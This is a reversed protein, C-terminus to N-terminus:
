VNELVNATYSRGRLKSSLHVYHNFIKHVTSNLRQVANIKANLNLYFPNIVLPNNTPANFLLICNM